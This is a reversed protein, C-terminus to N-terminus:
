SVKAARESYASALAQMGPTFAIDHPTYGPHYTKLVKPLLNRFADRGRMRDRQKRGAQGGHREM